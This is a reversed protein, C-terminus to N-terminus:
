SAGDGGYGAASLVRRLDRHLQEAPQDPDQETM